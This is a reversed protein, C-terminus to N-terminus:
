AKSPDVVKVEVGNTYEDLWALTYFIRSGVKKYKPGKGYCRYVELSSPATPVGKVDTLYKSAAKTSVLEPSRAGIHKLILALEESQNQNNLFDAKSM